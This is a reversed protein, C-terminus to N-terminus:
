VDAAIIASSQKKRVRDNGFIMDACLSPAIRIPKARYSWSWIAPCRPTSARGQEIWSAHADRQLLDLVRNSGAAFATQWLDACSSILRRSQRSMIVCSIDALNAIAARPAQDHTQDFRQGKTGFDLDGVLLITMGDHDRDRASPRINFAVANIQGLGTCAGKSKGPKSKDTDHRHHAVLWRHFVFVSLPVLNWARSGLMEPVQVPGAALSLSSVRSTSERSRFAARPDFYRPVRPNSIACAASSIHACGKSQAPQSRRTQM